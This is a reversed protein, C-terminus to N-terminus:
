SSVPTSSIHFDHPERWGLATDQDFEREGSGGVGVDSGREAHRGLGDLGVHSHQAEPEPQVVARLEGDVGPPRRQLLM